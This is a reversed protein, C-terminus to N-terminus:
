IMLLILTLFIRSVVINKSMKLLVRKQYVKGLYQLICLHIIVDTKTCRSPITTLIVDILTISTDAIRTPETVLQSFGYVQMFFDMKDRLSHKNLRDCNLDSLVFIELNTENAKDLIPSFRDFFDSDTSHRYGSAVLFNKGHEPIVEIWICELDDTELDSRRVYHVNQLIYM